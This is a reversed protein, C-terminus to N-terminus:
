EDGRTLWDYLSAIDPVSVRRDHPILWVSSMEYTSYSAFDDSQGIVLIHDDTRWSALHSKFKPVLDRAIVAPEGLLRFIADYEREWVADYAARDADRFLEWGYYGESDSALDDDLENALEPDPEEQQDYFVCFTLYLRRHFGSSPRDTVLQHGTGTNFHNPVTSRTWRSRVM